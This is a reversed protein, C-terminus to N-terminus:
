ELPLPIEGGTDTFPMETKIPRQLIVRRFVRLHRDKIGPSSFGLIMDVKGLRQFAAGRLSPKVVEEPNWPGVVHDWINKNLIILDHLRRRNGVVKTRLRELRGHPIQSGNILSQRLYRDGNNVSVEL